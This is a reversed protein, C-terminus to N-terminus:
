DRKKKIVKEKRTRGAFFFHSVRMAILRIASLSMNYTLKNDKLWILNKLWKKKSVLPAFFFNDFLFAAYLSKARQPPRGVGWPTPDTGGKSSLFVRLRTPSFKVQNTPANSNCM